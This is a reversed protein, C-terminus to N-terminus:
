APPLWGMGYCEPCQVRPLPPRLWGSARCARCDAAGAPRRPLWGALGPVREAAIAVLGVKLSGDPVREVTDDWWWNWVEGDADLYSCGTPGGTLCFGNLREDADRGQRRAEM